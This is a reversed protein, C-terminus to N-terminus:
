GSRAEEELKRNLYFELNMAQIEAKVNMFLMKQLESRWENQSWIYAKGLLQAAKRRDSGTLSLIGHENNQTCEDQSLELDENKIGLLKVQSVVLRHNEHALAVSGFKYVSLINLGHPDHDVVAYIRPSRTISNQGEPSNTPSASSQAADSLLRLFERTSIDPYGKGQQNLDHPVIECNQVEKEIVLVWEADLIDIRGILNASPILIGERDHWCEVADGSKYWMKMHGCVLGKAAAVVNLKGREVGFTYAIDDIINDVVSQKRFLKVDKYYIDRKTTIRDETLAELILGLVRILVAFRWSQEQSRAPFTIFRTSCQITSRISKSLPDFSQCARTKRIKLKIVLEKDQKEEALIDVLGSFIEEIHKRVWDCDKETIEEFEFRLQTRHSDSQSGLVPRVARQARIPTRNQQVSPAPSGKVGQDLTAPKLYKFDMSFMDIDDEDEFWPFENVERVPTELSRNSTSASSSSQQSTSVGGGIEDWWSFLDIEDSDGGTTHETLGPEEDLLFALDLEEMFPDM